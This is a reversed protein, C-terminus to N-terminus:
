VGKSKNLNSIAKEINSTDLLARVIESKNIEVGDRLFSKHINDVHDSQQEALYIVKRKMKEM